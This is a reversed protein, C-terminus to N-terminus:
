KAEEKVDFITGIVKCDGNFIIDFWNPDIPADYDERLRMCGNHHEVKFKRKFAEMPKGDKSFFENWSCCEVIDGEFIQKGNKDFLGTFQGITEPIVPYADIPESLSEFIEPYEINSQSLSGFLWTGDVRRGGLSITTGNDRDVLIGKTAGFEWFGRFLIERM